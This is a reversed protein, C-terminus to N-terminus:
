ESWVAAAITQVKEDEGSVDTANGEADQAQIVKSSMNKVPLMSDDPDDVTVEYNVVIVPKQLEGEAASEAPNVAGTYQVIISTVQKTVVIAM